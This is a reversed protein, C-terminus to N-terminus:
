WEEGPKVKNKHALLGMWKNNSAVLLIWGNKLVYSIIGSWVDGSRLCKIFSHFGCNSDGCKEEAQWINAFHPIKHFIFQM